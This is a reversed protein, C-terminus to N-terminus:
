WRRGGGLLGRLFATVFLMTTPYRVCLFLYGRMILVFAAILLILYHVHYHILVATIILWTFLHWTRMTM